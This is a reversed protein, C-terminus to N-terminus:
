KIFFRYIDNGNAFLLLALIIFMGVTQAYELFKDSPKRGSIVEYLLFSVHGGDLAPLPILNMVALVISLFATINWFAFWSWHDPFISGIAIVGGLSKYAETKPHFIMGLQKWYEAIKKGTLVVGAPIAQLLTYDHSRVPIDVQSPAVGIKGESNVSVPVDMRTAAGDVNREVTLTVSTRPNAGFAKLYEDFWAMPEGNFAVLRDGEKLGAKAAGEGKIVKGVVFATRPFMFEDPKTQSLLPRYKDDIAITVPEGGRLVEVREPVDMVISKFIDDYEEFQVGDVSVVRDGDRFGIQHALENFVSGQTLEANPIYSRGWACSIGIYVVVALVVNMLVGGVMVLLRQWAPKSRFEDPKPPQAMSETDMSEDIMGAIKCYGGFPVWGIGFETGRWNFKFLSFWPNFFLYFKEVRIGCLRAFFFHGFEHILVLLSFSLIFQTIKIVIDM